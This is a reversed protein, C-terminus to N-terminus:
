CKALVPHLCHHSVQSPRFVAAAEASGNALLSFSKGGWILFTGDLHYEKEQLEDIGLIIEHLMHNVVLFIVIGIDDLIFEVEGLSDINNGTLSILKVFTRQLTQLRNIDRMIKLAVDERVLTRSSGTDM